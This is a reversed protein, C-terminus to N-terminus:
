IVEESVCKREGLTMTPVKIKEMMQQLQELRELLEAELVKNNAIKEDLKNKGASVDRLSELKSDMMKKQESVERILSAFAMSKWRNIDTQAQEFISM